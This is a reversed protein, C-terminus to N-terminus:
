QVPPKALLHFTVEVPFAIWKDDAWQGQGVGFDQRSLIVAGEAHTIGDQQKLSFPIQVPQAIGRLTFTGEPLIIDPNAPTPFPPLFM